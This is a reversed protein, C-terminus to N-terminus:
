QMFDNEKLFKILDAVDREDRKRRRNVLLMKRIDDPRMGDASAVHPTPPVPAFYPTRIPWVIASPDAFIQWGTRWIAGGEPAPPEPQDEAPVCGEGWLIVGSGTESYYQV